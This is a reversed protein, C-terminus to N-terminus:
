LKRMVGGVRGVRGVGIGRRNAYTSIWRNTFILHVLTAMKEKGQRLLRLVCVGEGYAGSGRM